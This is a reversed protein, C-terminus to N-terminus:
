HDVLMAGFLLALYFLSYRYLRWATIITPKRRLRIAQDLFFIGLSLALLLYFGSLFGFIAPLTSAVLLLLTYFVIEDCTIKQGQVVPLMPIGARAYDYQKVLALAWFHPPTWLFIIVFLLMPLLSLSNTAAAWGVLPPIAGAAGGIIINHTTRRKLWYTYVLVYFLIGFLALFAALLNAGIWLIFFSLVSLALGFHLAHEPAIRRAPLPRRSTREML